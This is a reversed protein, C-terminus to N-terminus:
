KRLQKELKEIKKNLEKVSEVLAAIIANTELSLMSGDKSHVAMPMVKQVDQAIFGSMVTNSKDQNYIFTSTKLRLIENLGYRFPNINHKARRDSVSTINGSGDFTATGATYVGMTVTRNTNFVINSTALSLNGTASISIPQLIGTGAAYSGINFGDTGRAAISLFEFNTADAVFDTKFIGLQAQLTPGLGTGKPIISIDSGVNTGANPYATVSALNDVSSANSFQIDRNTGTGRPLFIAPTTIGTVFTPSTGFVLAGTGTEGTVASALNASSPTGLFTLVGTGTTTTSPATGAGGGIMLANAALLASTAWTSTSSFYPIGGSTGAVTLAPTTTATAVSIIGGTFGVSTVTGSGGTPIARTTVLKTTSDWVMMKGTPTVSQLLSDVFLNGLGPQLVISDTWNYIYSNRGGAEAAELSVFGDGVHASGVQNGNKFSNLQIGGIQQTIKTYVSSGVLTVYTEFIKQSPLSGRRLTIMSTDTGNTAVLIIPSTSSSRFNASGSFAADFGGGSGWRARETGNTKIVFDVGDTTGVFNTGATTGSNGTLNWAAASAPIGVTINQTGGGRWLILNSGSVSASDVAYYFDTRGNGYNRLYAGTKARSQNELIFTTNGGTKQFRISDARIYYTSQGYAM